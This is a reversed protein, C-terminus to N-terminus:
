RVSVLVPVPLADTDETDMVQAPALLANVRDPEHLMPADPEVVAVWYMMNGIVDVIVGLAM